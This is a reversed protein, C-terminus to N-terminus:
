SDYYGEDVSNRRYGSGSTLGRTYGVGWGECFTASAVTSSYYIYRNFFCLVAMRLVTLAESVRSLRCERLGLLRRDKRYFRISWQARQESRCVSSLHLGPIRVRWVSGVPKVERCTSPNPAAGGTRVITYSFRHQPPVQCPWTDSTVIRVRLVERLGWTEQGSASVVDPLSMKSSYAIM